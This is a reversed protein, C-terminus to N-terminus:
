PTTQFIYEISRNLQQPRREPTSGDFEQTLQGYYLSNGERLYIGYRTQGAPPVTVEFDSTFLACRLGTITRPHGIQWDSFGCVRRRNFDETLIDRYLTLQISEYRFEIYHAPEAYFRVFGATEFRFARDRCDADHHFDELTVVHGNKYIQQKKLGRQCHTHWLGNEISAWSCLSFITTLVFIISKLFM